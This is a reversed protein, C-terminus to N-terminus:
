LGRNRKILCKIYDRDFYNNFYEYTISKWQAFVNADDIKAFSYMINDIDVKYLHVSGIFVNASVKNKAEVGINMAFCLFEKINNTLSFQIRYKYEVKGCLDYDYISFVDHLKNHSQKVLQKHFNEIKYNM